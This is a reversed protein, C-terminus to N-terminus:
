KWIHGISATNGIGVFFCFLDITSFLIVHLPIFLATQAQLFATNKLTPGESNGRLLSVDVPRVYGNFIMMQSVGDMFLAQSLGQDCRYINTFWKSLGDLQIDYQQGGYTKGFLHPFRYMTFGRYKDYFGDM